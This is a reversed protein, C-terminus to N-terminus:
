ARKTRPGNPDGSWEHVGKKAPMADLRDAMKRYLDSRSARVTPKPQLLSGVRDLLRHAFHAKKAPKM